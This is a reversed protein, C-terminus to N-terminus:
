KVIIAYNAKEPLYKIRLRDGVKYRHHGIIVPALILSLLQKMRKM